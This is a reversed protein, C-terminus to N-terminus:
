WWNGSVVIMTLLKVTNGYYDDNKPDRGLLHAWLADLWEQHEPEAMAAVAFPGVFAASQDEHLRRGNLLYGANIRTPDGETESEIWANLPQLLALARPDGTMLYDTGIRWPARCANYAYQGDNPSELFKRPAPVYKGEKCVIFDPLLGTEPSFGATVQKFVTYTTDTIAKWRGDGSVAAFAKLHGPMFDSSRLSGKYKSEGDVWNGLTLTHRDRDTTAELIAAMVKRAESLYDIAGRSGWQRDALLLAYAVDLDGDTASDRDEPTVALDASDPIAIHRWAMLDPHTETPHARFFRYLADFDAHAAPDGADDRDVREGKSDGAGAMLVTVIMGYGHGESVSRAAPLDLKKEANAFVYLQGTAAPRLYKRKWIKHFRRVARDLVAPAKASPKITEPAYVTHQPFPRHEGAAHAQLSACLCACASLAPIPSLM